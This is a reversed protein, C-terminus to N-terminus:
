TGLVKAIFFIFLIKVGNFSDLDKKICTLINLFKLLPSSGLERKRKSLKFVIKV